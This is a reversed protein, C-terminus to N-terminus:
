PGRLGARVTRPRSSLVGWLHTNDGRSGTLATLHLDMPRLAPSLECRGSGFLTTSAVAALRTLGATTSPTLACRMSTRGPSLGVALPSRVSITHVEACESPLSPM